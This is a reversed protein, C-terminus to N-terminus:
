AFIIYLGHESQTATHYQQRQEISEQDKLSAEASKLENIDKTMHDYNKREDENM